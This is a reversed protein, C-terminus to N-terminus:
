EFKQPESLPDDEDAPITVEGRTYLGWLVATWFLMVAFCVATVRLCCGYSARACSLPTHLLCVALVRKHCSTHHNPPTVLSAWTSAPEWERYYQYYMVGCIILMINYENRFIVESMEMVGLLTWFPWSQGGLSGVMHIGVACGFRGAM